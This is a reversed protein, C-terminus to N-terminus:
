LEFVVVGSSGLAHELVGADVVETDFDLVHRLRLGLDLLRTGHVTRVRSGFLHRLSAVDLDLERSRVAHGDVQGLVAPEAGLLRGDFDFGSFQFTPTISRHFALAPVAGAYNWSEVRSMGKAGKAGKRSESRSPKPKLKNCDRPHM